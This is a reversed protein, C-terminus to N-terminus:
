MMPGAPGGGQELEDAAVEVAQEATGTMAPGGGPMAGMQPMAKSQLQLLHMERHIDFAERIREGDPGALAEEYDGSLMFRTMRALHIADDDYDAVPVGQGKLLLRIERDQKAAQQAAMDTGDEWNGLQLMEFIRARGEATLRGTEPDNYLGTNLLDFVMQRRQAPSESLASTNEVYLDEATLDSGMWFLTDVEDNRGVVRTMRQATVFQRYLRLRKKGSEISAREINSVTAAMRTDDQELALSLAVGSKVGPPAQGTKSVDSVGSLTIFETNLAQLENEFSAPLSPWNVPEPTRITGKKLVTVSGPAAFNMEFDDLDVSGEEVMMSGIAVRRLYDAKMNRLENYRDQLPRMRKVISNGWICGVRRISRWYTYPLDPQNDPGCRYPLPGIHLLQKNCVVIFRGEPYRATPREWLEKVVAHGNLKATGFRFSTGQGPVATQQIGVATVDEPDVRVQWLDYVTETPYARAELISACEGVDSRWPSDPFITFPSCIITNVDGERVPRRTIVPEAAAEPTGDDPPPLDAPDKQEELYGLFKGRHPDWTEKTVVTGVTEMWAVAESYKDPWGQDHENGMLVRASVKAAGVDRQESSTPRAKLIVRGRTLKSVRVEYIPAIQNHVKRTQWPFAKPREALDTGSTDLGLYQDDNIYAINLRWDLHWPRQDQLRRTYEREVYGIVEDKHGFGMAKLSAAMEDETPVQSPQGPFWSKVTSILNQILGGGSQAPNTPLTM